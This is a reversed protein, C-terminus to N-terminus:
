AQQIGALLWGSMGRLPKVLHWVETFAETEGTAADRLEGQFRVSVVYRESETAVDLVQADLMLVETKQTAGGRAKVDAEIDRYLEDALFDRITSLDGSDNAAQLRIFNQKAHRAFEQADFGAPMSQATAAGSTAAAVSHPAAGAPARYVPEVPAPTPGQPTAGAYQLPAQQPQMRSRLMRVLFFVGAAIALMLLLGSLMGAMGNNLFLAALGAGLALGALPGLWRSAASPQQAPPTAPAAQQQQAPARPAAQNPQMAERQQGLSRGGGMRKAAEAEASMLGAAGLTVITMLILAWTKM